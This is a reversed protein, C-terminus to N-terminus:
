EPSFPLDGGGYLLDEEGGAAQVRLDAFAQDIDAGWLDWTTYRLGVLQVGVAPGYLTEEDLMTMGEAAFVKEVIDKASALNDPMEHNVLFSRPGLRLATAYDRGALLVPGEVHFRGSYPALEDRAFARVVDEDDGLPGHPEILPPSPWDAM